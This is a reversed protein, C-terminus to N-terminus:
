EERRRTRIYPSEEEVRHERRKKHLRGGTILGDDLADQLEKEGLGIRGAWRPLDFNHRRIFSPDEDRDPNSM